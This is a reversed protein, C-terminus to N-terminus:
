NFKELSNVWEDIQLKIQDRVEITKQLKEDYTGKITSPDPFSWHIMQNVGLFIPCKEANVEDCM